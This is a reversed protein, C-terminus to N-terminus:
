SHNTIVTIMLIYLRSCNYLALCLKVRLEETCSMFEEPVFGVM